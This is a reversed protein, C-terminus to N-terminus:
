DKINQLMNSITFGLAGNDACYEITNKLMNGWTLFEDVFSSNHWLITFVGNHTRVTDILKIVNNKAENIDLGRYKEQVLTGDMVILPIEWLELMKRNLHSYAKFPKCTGARFGEHEAFGVTADYIFELSDYIDWSKSVDFRLWHNRNGNVQTLAMKELYAKEETIADIVGFSSYSTHLGIESQQLNIKKLLKILLNKNFYKKDHNSSGGILFFYTFPYDYLFNDDFTWYPDRTVDVKSKIYQGARIFLNKPTKLLKSHRYLEKYFPGFKTLNDVDQTICCAFEASGWYNKYSLCLGIKKLEDILLGVTLDVIPTNILGMKHIFSSEFQYRDHLDNDGVNVYEDYLTLFFFSTAPFDINTELYFKDGSKFWPKLGGFFFIPIDNYEFKKVPISTTKYFNKNFLTSLINIHLVPGKLISIDVIFPGYIILPTEDTYDIKDVFEIKIDIHRFLEKLSYKVEIDYEKHLNFINCKM